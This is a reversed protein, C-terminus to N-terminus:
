CPGLNVMCLGYRDADAEPGIGQGHAEEHYMVFRLHVSSNVANGALTRGGFFANEHIISNSSNLYM